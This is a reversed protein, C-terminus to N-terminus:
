YEITEDVARQLEKYMEDKQEKTLETDAEISAKYRLIDNNLAKCM